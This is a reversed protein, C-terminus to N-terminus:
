RTFKANGETKVEPFTVELEMDAPLPENLPTLEPRAWRFKIGGIPILNRESLMKQFAPLLQQRVVKDFYHKRCGRCMKLSTRFGIEKLRKKGGMQGRVRQYTFFSPCWCDKAEEDPDAGGVQTTAACNTIDCKYPDYTVQGM